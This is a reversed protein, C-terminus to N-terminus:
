EPINLVQGARTGNGMGPNAARLKAVTIKYQRAVVQMTEGPKVKHSRVKASQKQAPKKPEVKTRPPIQRPPDRKERGGNEDSNAAVRVPDPRPREQIVPPDEAIRTQPQEPAQVITTSKTLTRPGQEFEPFKLFNTVYNTIYQPGRALKAELEEIMKEYAKNTSTLREIHQQVDRNIVAYSHTRALERKLHDIQGRAFGAQSSNTNLTLHKQYHYIAAAPDNLQRDWLLALEFHALSNNPNSQLAREYSDVAGSWDYGAARRQAELVHPDKDEAVGGRKFQSCGVLSFALCWSLLLRWLPACKTM